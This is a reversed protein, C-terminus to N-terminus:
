FCDGARAATVPAADRAARVDYVTYRGDPGAFVERALGRDVLEQLRTRENTKYQDFYAQEVVVFDIRKAHLFCGYQEPTFSRKFMSETFLESALVAGARVLYYLGDERDNPALVRYRAGSAFAPSATFPAYLDRSTRVIGTYSGQAFGTFGNAFATNVALGVVVVAAAPLWYRRLLAACPTLVFPALLVTGRRVVVDAVSLAMTKFTNEGVAPTLLMLYVFPATALGVSAALVGAVPLTVRRRGVAWALYLAVPPLGMLPHTSAALWGLMGAWPWRRRDLAAVYLFFFVASWVFAFQFAFVADIYFPNLVFLTLLWPDRMVPRAVGAAWLLAVLGVVFLLTVAWEGLVIFLLAGVLWPVGGYPLTVAEGGDLPAARVPFTHHDILRDKLYWVHVYTNISDVGLFIRKSLVLALVAALAAFVALPLFFATRRGIGPPAHRGTWVRWWAAPMALLDVAVDFLRTRSRFVPVPVRVDNRVRYGLRCLIVAVEVTESYKWGRYYRLADLLPGVRFIRFGSEVDHWRRGAWLTAWASMLWNGLRKYRTYGSGKLDREAVLADLDEEVTLRILRDLLAPDHQGDADVTLILDDPSLDGRRVREGIAQFAAYYAASMGRNRDFAVLQIRVPGDSEAARREAIFRQIEARTGDTSGDDVIVIEDVAPHAHLKALVGYVTPQENYAPVVAIRRPVRRPRRSPVHPRHPASLTDPSTATM